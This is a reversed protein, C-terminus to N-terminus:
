EHKQQNLKFPYYILYWLIFAVSLTITILSLIHNQYYRTLFSEIFGAIIFLPVLGFIIKFASKSRMKFSQLRTYTGPFLWGSGLLIGAGGAFVIATIEITGHMWIAQASALGLDQQVFFYQFSGLMVGNRALLVGTFWPTLLGFLFVLISVYVNNLTITFFMEWPGQSAYIGMPDGSEINSMTQNVYADGLILRLFSQDYHASLIGIAASLMFVLFSFWVHIRAEYISNPFETKWFQILRKSNERKRRYLLEHVLASLQNLYNEVQSNPFYTRAYSLDETLRTYMEALETTSRSRHKLERELQQWQESYLHVFKAEKM